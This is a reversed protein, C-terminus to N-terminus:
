SYRPDPHPRSRIIELGSLRLTLRPLQHKLYEPAEDNIQSAQLNLFKLQQMSKLEVLGEFSINEMDWNLSLEELTGSL